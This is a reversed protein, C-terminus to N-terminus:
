PIQVLLSDKVVDKLGKCLNHLKNQVGINYLNERPKWVYGYIINGAMNRNHHGGSNTM